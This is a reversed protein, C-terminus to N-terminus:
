YADGRTTIATVTVTGSKFTFFIRYEGDRARFTGRLQGKLAKVNQVNPWAELGRITARISDVADAPVGRLDKEASKTVIVIAM